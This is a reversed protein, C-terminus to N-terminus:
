KSDSRLWDYTARLHKELSIEPKYGLLRKAKGIDAKRHLVTDWSRRAVYRLPAKSSAIRNVLRAVNLVSTSVGSGINFAEGVAAPKYAALLLGQVTNGVWNFDRTERGTGTITLPRSKLACSFFNPIVNRYRGPREGPGFSNFIRVVSAPLSYHSNFFATYREGLLKSIAYPTDPHFSSDEKVAGNFNGYVCSSSAYVFRGVKHKLSQQLLRLTGLGNVLIDKEPHEVSNENAFNAALHFVVDVGDRFASDLAAGDLISKALVVVKKDRAVLDPYGSDMNDLVVIRGAVPLLARVLNSGIAGAGGTVLVSKGELM